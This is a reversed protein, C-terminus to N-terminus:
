RRNRIRTTEKRVTHVLRGREDIVGLRGDTGLVFALGNYFPEVWSYRETYLADGEKDIHYFGREDRAIGYDKHYPWLALYRRGSVAVGNKDIYHALGQRDYVVARGYKFDGAYRHNESYARGGKPTIHFYNGKADRVPARDETFNGAWEYRQGYAANGCTDIHHWGSDDMVAALGQYYGFAKKFRNRYCPRGALDIHYAEEEDGVAAIGPEHFSMVWAFRRSYLPMGRYVHHTGDLSVRVKSLVVRM